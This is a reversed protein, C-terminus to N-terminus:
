LRFLIKLGGKIIRNLESFTRISFLNKILFVPRIYFRKYAFYFLEALDKKSLYQEWLPPEFDIQPSKVFNEWGAQDIVEQEIGMKYIETGPIPQLVNFQAYDPSFKILREINKIVDEKSKEFPLGIIFDAITKIKLKRCWTLVNKIQETTIGKKLSQLGEDTGTEIGFHIRDCGSRKAAKLMEFTVTNIRGRFSWSFNINANLIKNSLDIVWEPDINFTDDYFFIERYGQKLRLEIEDLINDIRRGRFFKYPSDCFTCNYPCGRSTLLTIMNHYKGVTSHYLERKIFGADFFPLMNIDRIIAKKFDGNNLDPKIYLGDIAGASKGDRLKRILETFVYEGEGVVISDVDSYELTQKPFVFNHPGGICIHVHKNLGKAIRSIKLVDVLSVTFATIGIVQPQFHELMRSLAPYDIRESACDLVKVETDPLQQKLVTAIYLLGLPPFVGYDSSNLQWGQFYKVTNEVPPMILIVRM